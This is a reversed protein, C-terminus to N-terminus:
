YDEPTGGGLWELLTPLLWTRVTFHMVNAAISKTLGLIM